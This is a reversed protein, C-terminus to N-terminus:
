VTLMAAGFVGASDGLQNKVIKTEFPKNFIYQSAEERGRSYLLDINSLGGGLVVYEPDLINIVYAIAKGFFKLLREITEIAHLDSGAEFRRFIEQVRVREGSREAYFQELARGSFTMENDGSNGCFCRPGGPDIINHGWEGAGGRAGYLAKGDIVIGGGVGTGALPHRRLRLGLNPRNGSVTRRGRGLWDVARTTKVRTVVM